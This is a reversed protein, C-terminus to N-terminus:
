LSSEKVRKVADSLRNRYEKLEKILMKKGQFQRLQADTANPDNQVEEAQLLATDLLIGIAHEVDPHLLAQLKKATETDFIM